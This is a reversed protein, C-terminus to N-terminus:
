MGKFGVPSLLVYEAVFPLKIPYRFSLLHGEPFISPGPLHFLGHLGPGEIKSAFLGFLVGIFLVGLMLCVADVGVFLAGSGGHQPVGYADAAMTPASQPFGEERPERSPAVPSVDLCIHM